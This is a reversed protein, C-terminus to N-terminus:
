EFLSEAQRKKRKNEAAIVKMSLYIGTGTLIMLAVATLDILWKVNTNGIRGEHLGRIISMISGQGPRQGRIGEPLNGNGRFERQGQFQGNGNQGNAQGQFPGGGQPGSNQQNGQEFGGNMGQPREGQNFQGPQFNGKGGEFQTQGILWPENMLLGTLSEIFIFISAILSDM